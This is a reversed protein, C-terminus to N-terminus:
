PQPAASARLAALERRAQPLLASRPHALILHELREVAAAHEGRARLRDTPM